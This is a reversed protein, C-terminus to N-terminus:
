IRAVLRLPSGSNVSKMWQGGERENLIEEALAARVLNTIKEYPVKGGGDLFFWNYDSIPKFITKREVIPKKWFCYWERTTVTVTGFQMGTGDIDLFSFNSLNM